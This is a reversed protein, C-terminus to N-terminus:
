ESSSGSDAHSGLFVWRLAYDDILESVRGGSDHGNGPVVNLLAAAPERDSIAQLAQVYKFSHAPAVVPDNERTVLLAPPHGVLEAAQVLLRQYPSSIFGQYEHQWFRAGGLADLRVLDLVAADTILASFLRPARQVAEAALLGGHSRGSIALQGSAALWDHHLWDAVSLVDSISTHRREGKGADHWSEGYDGGGRPGAVAYAGGSALWALRSISFSTEMPAAFGGYIEMLMIGPARNHTRTSDAVWVPVLAGDDARVRVLSARLDQLSINPENQRLTTQQGSQLDVLVSRPPTLIGSYSILLQQEATARMAEIRVPAPMAVDGDNVPRGDLNFVRLTSSGYVLYELVLQQGLVLASLLPAETEAILVQSQQQGALTVAGTGRVGTTIFASQGIIEGVYHAIIHDGGTPSQVSLDKGRLLAAASSSGTEVTEILRWGPSDVASSATVAVLLKKGGTSRDRDDIVHLQEIHRGPAEIYVLESTSLAAGAQYSYVRSQWSDASDPQQWDTDTQVPASRLDGLPVSATFYLTDAEQGWALREAPLTWDEHRVGLLVPQPTMSTLSQLYWLSEPAGAATNRNIQYALWDADPSISINGPTTGDVFAAGNILLSASDDPPGDDGREAMFDALPQRYLSYHDDLGQNYYFFVQENKIDVVMWRPHDWADRLQERVQHYAAQQRRWDRTNLAQQELWLSVRSETVPSELWLYPDSASNAPSKLCGSLLNLSLLGSLLLSSHIRM